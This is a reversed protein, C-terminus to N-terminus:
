LVLLLVTLTLASLATGLAVAGSASNVAYGFKSAFLFSNAGSPMAAVLVVVGTAVPPLAFVQSALVWAIAPMAALKLICILGLTPAQGKVQFQTLSLGLAVLAAPIGAQSLLALLKDVPGLLGLGVWGWVAGVLTAIVIPNRGLTVALDQLIILPSKRAANDAIGMAMLAVLWMLPSQLLIILALPVLADDGYRSVAIPIGLMVANAYMASMAISVGEPARRGLLKTSLVLGLLGTAIAAGFFSIWLGVPAVAPFDATAMRHFLLAPIALTFAFETLGTRGQESIVDFKGALFGIGILGFVPAVISLVFLFQM